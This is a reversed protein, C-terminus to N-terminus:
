GRLKEAQLSVRLIANTATLADFINSRVQNFVTVMEDTGSAQGFPLSLREGEYKLYQQKTIESTKPSAQYTGNRFIVVRAARFGSVKILKETSSKTQSVAGGTGTLYGSLEDFTDPDAKSSFVEDQEFELGFPHLYVPLRSKAQGQSGPQPDYPLDQWEKFNNYAESLKQSQRLRGFRTAM